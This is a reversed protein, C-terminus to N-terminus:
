KESMALELLRESQAECHFLYRWVTDQIEDPLDVLALEFEQELEVSAEYLRAYERDERARAKLAKIRSQLSYEMIHGGQKKQIM